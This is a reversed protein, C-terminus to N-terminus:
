FRVTADLTRLAKPRQRPLLAADRRVHDRAAALRTRSRGSDAAVRAAGHRRVHELVAAHAPAPRQVGNDARGIGQRRDAPAGQGVRDGRNPGSGRDHRGGHRGLTANPADIATKLQALDEATCKDHEVCWEEFGPWMVNFVAQSMRKHARVCKDHASSGATM